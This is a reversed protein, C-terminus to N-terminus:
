EKVALILTPDFPYRGFEEGYIALGGPFAADVELKLKLEGEADAAALVHRPIPIRVLYGYSGAERLRRDRLQAHWSLIGRHDAPDDPLFQTGITYGNLRIRVLSPFPTEDTMPYANPNLSSDHTGKGLMFNGSIEQQGERDKGYLQKASLEAVLGAEVIESASFEAPWPVRYEFHGSGAGNIKLGHLVEWDKKSWQREAINDPTLRVLWFSKGSAERLEVAQQDQPKVRFSTFNRHLVRGSRDEVIFSLVMLGPTEPMRVLVPELEEFMWPRVLLPRVEESLRRYNGTDEWGHLRTRLYLAEPLDKEGMYASIHLPVRVVTGPAVDVCLDLEPSVYIKSHLDRLSMGETLDSLGTEKESRDYRYYGNWENIVDHHETYLWGCNKPQRRFENIMLHYDWSWDVDGTSGEYGWVNGCESNFLPENGQARGEVYNWESGEHTSDVIEKLSDRWAYGPLYAHWSNIDTVVHDKKNPSNDEVLRTPDLEKALAYMSAVWDQTEKLYGEGKTTLGWTENFIVWSFISPHNFDRAIMGRLAHESEARMELTPEGWSNPVDAMILMGLRDAWYLKRPTEIKVHIRMGNLGIKLSRIIEDRMFADSPFTYFGEPHYAQDLTMQLYVPEDNIAVYPHGLGPLNVVSVKRMGFYTSVKDQTLNQGAISVDVEYLFPDDLSWLRPNPLSVDFTKGDEGAAVRQLVSAVEGNSFQLEVQLETKAAELLSLDVTVKGEDIDPSFHVTNLPISGRAELYVTQWIGRAPGYGQKGELKFAHKSDDVRFVLLQEKGYRLRPTLEFEFPTYGGQHSGLEHGDLWVTTKWDCAGIVLFVRKGEWTAPVSIKRSYWGIDAEDQIGSLPAGWSFPVIIEDQFPENDSQWGQGLGQNEQDFRFAWSGNLNIWDERQFDPRPHEALPVPKLQTETQRGGTGALLGPILLIQGMLRLLVSGKISTAQRM